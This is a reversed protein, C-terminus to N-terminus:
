FNYSPADLSEPPLIHPGGGPCKLGQLLENSMEVRVTTAPAAPGGGETPVIPWGWQGRGRQKSAAM